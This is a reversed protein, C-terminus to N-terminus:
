FHAIYILYCGLVWTCDSWCTVTGKVSDERKLCDGHYTVEPWLRHQCAKSPAKCPGAVIQQQKTKLRDHLELEEDMRDLGTEVADYFEEDNLASHPGEQLLRMGCEM